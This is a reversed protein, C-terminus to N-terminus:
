RLGDVPRGVLFRVAAPVATKAQGLSPAVLRHTVALDSVDPHRVDFTAQWGAPCREYRVTIAMGEVVLDDVIAGGALRATM